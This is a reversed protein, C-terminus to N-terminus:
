IDKARERIEGLPMAPNEKRLKAYKAMLRLATAWKDLDPFEERHKDLLAEAAAPDTKLTRCYEDCVEKLAPDM